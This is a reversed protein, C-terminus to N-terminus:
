HFDDQYTCLVVTNCAFVSRLFWGNLNSGSVTEDLKFHTEKGFLVTLNSSSGFIMAQDNKLIMRYDVVNILLKKSIYKGLRKMEHGPSFLTVFSIEWLEFFGSKIMVKLLLLQNIM